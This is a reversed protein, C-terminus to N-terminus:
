VMLDTLISPSASAASAAFASRTASHFLIRAAQGRCRAREAADPAPPWCALIAPSGPARGTVARCGGAAEREGLERPEAIGWSALRMPRALGLAIMTTASFA